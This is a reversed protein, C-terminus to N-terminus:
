QLWASLDRDVLDQLQLIDERYYRVLRARDEPALVPLIHERTPRKKKRAADLMAKPLIQKAMDKIQRLRLAHSLGAFRPVHPTSPVEVPGPRYSCDVDLFAFVSELWAGRDAQTEEYLSLHIQEAPFCERYRRVQGAYNGFDLFPHFIGLKQQNCAIALDLHKHFAHGVTGDSVSKLYQHFAREAPDMLVIVIRAKPNDKAIAYPATSSWLYCVSGEGIAKEERVGAFLREYDEGRSVVGGFRKQQMPGAIYRRTAEEAQSMQERIQADFNERRIESSYFCPEKLPSMYIEPHQDLEYYLLDTGAKPAGVIFFNPIPM